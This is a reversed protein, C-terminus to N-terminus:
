LMGKIGFKALVGEIRAREDEFKQQEKGVQIKLQSNLFTLDNITQQNKKTYTETRIERTEITDQLKILDQHLKNNESTLRSM